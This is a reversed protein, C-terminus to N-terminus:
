CNPIAGSGQSVQELVKFKKKKIDFGFGWKNLNLGHGRTLDSTVQSFFIVGM